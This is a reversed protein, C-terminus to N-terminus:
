LTEEIMKLNNRTTGAEVAGLLELIQLAERYLKGAEAKDGKSFALEGLNNLASAVNVRDNLTRFSELAETLLKEAGRWDESCMTLCGLNMKALAVCREEGLRQAKALAEEYLRRAEILEGQLLAISGLNLLNYSINVEEGASEFLKLSQEYYDRAAQLNGQSQATLGLRHLTSAVMKTEGAERAETLLCEYSRKAEEYEGRRVRIKAVNSKFRNAVAEKGAERALCEALEGSKIAEDWYGYIDLFEELGSRIRTLSDWDSLEACVYLAGLLNGKEMEIAALDEATNKKHWAVYHSFLNVFRRRTMEAGPDTSLRSKALERTLGRLYFRDNSETAEVLWLASLNAVAQELRSEDEGFGVVEALAERSADPTFLALALLAARGDDGLQPLNFSRTFVREAADGEGKALYDLATQPTKALVIQRVVWQLILPNAECKQILDDHDLRAFKQSKPTRDILRRLFERAEDLEMAALEVNSVDDRGVFERTTILVPCVANRALFDLCHERAEGAVTEFNDLVVLAPAESLLAAVRTAKPEPALRRLDERGLRTAIEDLLTALSFDERGLASVWAVRGKFADAMARVFEAALTTKGSGGPGWLAVLQNKEPALEEKLRGVIDRGQEDRRAVFGVVPPRPILAAAVTFRGAAAHTEAANPFPAAEAARKANLEEAARRIGNAIDAFADDRNKWKTIPRGNKPLAQLRGFPASAWECPRLVVPIVVAEGAKERELALGLEIDYCYDSALFSASVLLLIIDAAKLQEDIEKAWAGGAGIRRDHWESVIGQRRLLSLHEELVDRLKEDKHSYSYFVKMAANLQPGEPM